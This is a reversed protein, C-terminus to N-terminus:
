LDFNIVGNRTRTNYYAAFRYRGWTVPLKANVMTRDFEGEIIWSEGSGSERSIALIEVALPSKILVGSNHVFCVHRDKCQSAAGSDFFALMLDWKSPGQTIDLSYRWAQGGPKNVSLSM